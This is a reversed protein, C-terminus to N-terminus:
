DPAVREDVQLLYVGGWPVDEAALARLMQWPTTGGSVAAVFKGRAAVASRAEAAVVAAARRAVAEADPLIEFRMPEGHNPTPPSRVGRGGERPLFPSFSAPLTKAGGKKPSPNPLP